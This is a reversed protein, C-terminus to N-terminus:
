FFFGRRSYRSSNTIADAIVEAADETAWRDKLREKQEDTSCLKMEEGRFFLQDYKLRVKEKFFEELM